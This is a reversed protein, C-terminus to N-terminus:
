HHFMDLKSSTTTKGHCSKLRLSPIMGVNHVELERQSNAMHRSNVAAWSAARNPWVLSLLNPPSVSFPTIPSRPFEICKASALTKSWDLRPIAVAAGKGWTPVRTALATKMLPRNSHGSAHVHTMQNQDSFTGVGAHFVPLTRTMNHKQQIGHHCAQMQVNQWMMIIHWGMTDHFTMVHWTVKDHWCSIKHWAMDHLTMGHWAMDHWCSIQTMGHWSMDHWCSIKHWPMDHWRM